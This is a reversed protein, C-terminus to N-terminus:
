LDEKKKETDSQSKVEKVQDKTEAKDSHETTDFIMSCDEEFVLNDKQFYNYVSMRKDIAKILWYNLSASEHFKVDHRLFSGLRPFLVVM